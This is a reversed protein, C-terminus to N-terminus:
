INSVVKIPESIPVFINTEAESAEYQTQGITFGYASVWRDAFSFICANKRKRVETQLQKVHFLQLGLFRRSVRKGVNGLHLM